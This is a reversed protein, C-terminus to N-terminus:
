MVVCKSFISNRKRNTDVTRQGDTTPNILSYNERRVPQSTYSFHLGRGSNQGTDPVIQSTHESVPIVASNVTLKSEVIASSNAHEVNTEVPILGERLRKFWHRLVSTSGLFLGVGRGIYIGVVGLGAPLGLVAGVATSVICMSAFGTKLSYKTDDFTGQIAGASIIRVAEFIQNAGNLILVYQSAQVIEANKPDDVDIFPRMLPKPFISYIGFVVSTVGIGLLLNAKGLMRSKQLNTRSYGTLISCGQGLGYVPVVGFFLYQLGIENIQLDDKTMYTGIIITQGIVSLFEIAVQLGIPGGIRLLEWFIEKDLWNGAMDFLRIGRFRPDNKFRNSNRLYVSFGILSLWASVSSAHGLGEAELAPCILTSGIQVGNILVYGLGATILANIFSIVNPPLLNFTGFCLQQEVNLFLIAPVGWVFGQFYKQAIAILDEPQKVVKLIQGSLLILGVSPLSIMCAIVMGNRLYKKVQPIQNSGCAISTKSSVSFLIAASSPVILNQYTNILNSAALNVGEADIKSLLITNVYVGVTGILLNGGIRLGIDASDRLSRGLTYEELDKTEIADSEVSENLPQRLDNAEAAM